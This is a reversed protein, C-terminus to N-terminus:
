TALDTESDVPIKIFSESYNPDQDMIIESLSILELSANFCSGSDADSELLARMATHRKAEENM